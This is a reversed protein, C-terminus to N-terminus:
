REVAPLYIANNLTIGRVLTAIRTGGADTYSNVKVISGVTLAGRSDNLATADTVTYGVGDIVWVTGAASADAAALTNVAQLSGLKDDDGAGPPVHSEVKKLWNVGDVTRYEVEVYSGVVLVSNSDDFLTTQDAIFIVGDINWQGLLSNDPKAKIFGYSKFHGSQSPAGDDDSTEIEKAVRNGENNVYYEVKVKVGVALPTDDGDDDDLETQRTVIYDIGSITWTGTVGGSPMVEIVGFAHGENGDFSGNDDDDSGDDDTKYKTEIKLAINEDKDNTYFKVEVLMGVEFPGREAELKTQGTVSIAISGILWEGTLGNAPLSRIVGYFEGKPFGISNDDDDDDSGQGDCKYSSETKIEKALPPTGTVYEVEVCAGVRFGGDEQEFYTNSDAAYVTGGITWEGIFGSTPMVDVRAYRKLDDDDDGGNDDGGGSNGGCDSAPESDIESARYTGDARVTYDVKVCAGLQIAGEDEDFETGSDATFSRGRVTWQGVRGESPASEVTGRWELDNDDDDGGGDDGGGNCDGAPESDIEDAINAGNSEVYKVKACAGIVLTGEEEDFETGANAVFVKGGVTWEGIRTGDGPTAEILGRWILDDDGAQATGIQWSMLGIFIGVFLVVFLSTGALKQMANVKNM